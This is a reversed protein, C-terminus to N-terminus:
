QMRVFKPYYSHASFPFPNAYMYVFLIEVVVM